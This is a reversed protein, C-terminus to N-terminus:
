RAAWYQLILEHQDVVRLPDVFVLCCGAHMASIHALALAHPSGQTEGAANAMLARQSRGLPLGVALETGKALASM